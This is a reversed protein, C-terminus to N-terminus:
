HFTGILVAAATVTDDGGDDAAASGGYAQKNSPGPGVLQGRAWAAGGEPDPVLADLMVNGSGGTTAGIGYLTAGGTPDEDQVTGVKPWGSVPPAPADQRGVAIASYCVAVATVETQAAEPGGATVRVRSLDRDPLAETVYAPVGAPLGFGLGMVVSHEPCSAVAAGLGTEVQRTVDHVGLDCVAYAIVRWDGSLGPREAAVVTVSKHDASYGVRTVAVRGGGGVVEAGGAFVQLDGPCTVTATKVPAGGVPSPQEHRTAGVGAYAPGAPAVLLTALAIPAAAAAVVRRLTNAHRM